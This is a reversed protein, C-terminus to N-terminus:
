ENPGQQGRDWRSGDQGGGQAGLSEMEWFVMSPGAGPAEAGRTGEAEFGRGCGTGQLGRERHANHGELM